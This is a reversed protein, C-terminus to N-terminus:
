NAGRRRRKGPNRDQPDIEFPQEGKAYPALNDIAARLAALAAEVQDVAARMDAVAGPALGATAPGTGSKGTTPRNGAGKELGQVPDPILGAAREAVALKRLFKASYRDDDRAYYLTRVSVGIAKALGSDNPFGLKERLIEIRSKV